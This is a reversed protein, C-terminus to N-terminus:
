LAARERGGGCSSSRSASLAMLSLPVWILDGTQPVRYDPDYTNTFSIGTVHGTVPDVLGGIAETISPRYRIILTEKVTYVIPVARGNVAKYRPLGSYEFTWVDGPKDWALSLAQGAKLTVERGHFVADSGAPRPAQRALATVAWTKTGKSASRICTIPM